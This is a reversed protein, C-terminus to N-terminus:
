LGRMKAEVKYRQENLIEQMVNNADYWSKGDFLIKLTDPKITEPLVWITNLPATNIINKNMLLGEVEKGDITDAKYLPIM